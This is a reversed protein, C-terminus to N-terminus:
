QDGFSAINSRNVIVTPGTVNEIGILPYGDELCMNLCITISGITLCTGKQRVFLEFASREHLEVQGGIAFPGITAKTRSACGSFVVLSLCLALAVLFKKM